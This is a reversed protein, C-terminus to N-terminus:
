WRFRAYSWDMVMSREPRHIEGCFLDFSLAVSVQAEIM